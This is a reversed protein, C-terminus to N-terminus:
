QDLSKLLMADVGQFYQALTLNLAKTIRVLLALPIPRKGTEWEAVRACDVGIYQALAYRTLKAQKRREELIIGLLRQTSLHKHKVKPM